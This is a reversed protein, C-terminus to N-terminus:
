RRSEVVLINPRAVPRNNTLTACISIAAVHSKKIASVGMHKNRYAVNRKQIWRNRGYRNDCQWICVSVPLGIYLCPRAPQLHHHRWALWRADDTAYMENNASNTKVILQWYYRNCNHRLCHPKQKSTPVFVLHLSTMMSIFTFCTAMNCTHKNYSLTKSLAHTLIVVECSFVQGGRM